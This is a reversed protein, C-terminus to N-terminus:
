IIRSWARMTWPSKTARKWKISQTQWNCELADRSKTQRKIHGRISKSYASEQPNYKAEEFVSTHPISSTTSRLFSECEKLDKTLCIMVTLLWLWSVFAVKIFYHWNLDKILSLFAYLSSLDHKKITRYMEVNKLATVWYHSEFCPSFSLHHTKNLHGVPVQHWLKAVVCVNTQSWLRLRLWLSTARPPM